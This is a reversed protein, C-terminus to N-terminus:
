TEPGKYVALLREKLGFGCRRYIRGAASDNDAVIVPLTAPHQGKAWEVGATILAACIGRRRYAERTEVAQFRATREDAYIGLDGALDEGSFAGFWVGFGDQTQKRYIKMRNEIYPLYGEVAHGAAVGTIGQLETAKAWDEDNLLPRITIGEPPESRNLEGTMVLVDCNDLKFGMEVFPSLDEAKIGAHLDWQLTVHHAGPFESHFLTILTDPDVTYEKFIVTNGFWFDPENPSRLIFRDPHEELTSQGRLVLVDSALGLSQLPM